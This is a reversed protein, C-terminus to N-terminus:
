QTMIQRKMNSSKCLFCTTTCCSLLTAFTYHCYYIYCFMCCTSHLVFLINMLVFLQTYCCLTCWSCLAHLLCLTCLLRLTTYGVRHVYCACHRAYSETPIPVNCYQIHQLATSSECTCRCYYLTCVACALHQVV